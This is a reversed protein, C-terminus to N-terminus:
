VRKQDPLDSSLWQKPPPHLGGAEGVRCVRSNAGVSLVGDLDLARRFATGFEGVSDASHHLAAPTM